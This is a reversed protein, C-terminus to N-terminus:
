GLVKMFRSMADSRSGLLLNYEHHCALVAKYLDPTTPVLNYFFHKTWNTKNKFKNKQWFTDRSGKYHYADLAGFFNNQEMIGNKKKNIQFTEDLLFKRRHCLKKQSLFKNRDGFTKRNCYNAERGFVPETFFYGKIPMKYRIELIKKTLFYSNWDDWIILIIVDPKTKERVWVKSWM